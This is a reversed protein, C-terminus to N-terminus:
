ESKGKWLLIDLGSLQLFFRSMEAKNEQQFIKKKDCGARVWTRRGRMGVTTLPFSLVLELAQLPLAPYCALSCLLRLCEQGECLFWQLM